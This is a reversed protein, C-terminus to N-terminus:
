WSSAKWVGRVLTAEAVGIAERMLKRDPIVRQAWRALGTVLNNLVDARSHEEGVQPKYRKIVEVPDKNPRIGGPRPAEEAFLWPFLGYLASNM